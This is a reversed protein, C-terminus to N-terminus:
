SAGWLGHDLSLGGEEEVWVLVLVVVMVLWKDDWSKARCGAELITHAKGDRPLWPLKKCNFIYDAKSQLAGTSGLLIVGVPIAKFVLLLWGTCFDLWISCRPNGPGQIGSDRPYLLVKHVTCRKSFLQSSRLLPSLGGCAPPSPVVFASITPHCWWSLPYSNSCARPSPSPCPLRPHQLQHPWLYNSMVSRSFLLLLLIINWM